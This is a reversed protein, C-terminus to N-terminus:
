RGHSSFRKHLNSYINVKFPKLVEQYPKSRSSTKGDTIVFLVHPVGPRQGHADKFMESKSKDLAKDTRTGGPQYKLKLIAEKLAAANKARDSNFDWDLYARHNYHIVAVHSMRHSVHMKDVLQILFAKVKDYNDRRVSSSSDIVIGIDM